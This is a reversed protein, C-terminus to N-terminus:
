RMFSSKSNTKERHSVTKTVENKFSALSLSYIFDMLREQFHFIPKKINCNSEQNCEYEDAGCCITLHLPGDLAELVEGFVIHDLPKKLWYGGSVGKRSEIIQSKALAQLVKGLLEFPIHYQDAIERSTTPKAGDLDAIHLLSILGYEVKKSLKIM